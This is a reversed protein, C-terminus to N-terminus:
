PSKSDIMYGNMNCGSSDDAVIRSRGGFWRSLMFVVESSRVPRGAESNETTEDGELDVLATALVGEVVGVLM